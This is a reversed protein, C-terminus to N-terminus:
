GARPGRPVAPALRAHRKRARALFLFWGVFPLAIVVMLWGIKPGFPCRTGAPPTWPGSHRSILVHVTPLVTGFLLLTWALVADAEM